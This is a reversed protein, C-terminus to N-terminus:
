AARESPALSHCTKRWTTKGEARGSVKVPARMARAAAKEVTTAASSIAAFSPSPQITKEALRNRRLSTIMTPMMTRPTMPMASFRRTRRASVAMTCQRPTSHARRRRARDPSRNREPSAEAIPPDREQAEQHEGREPDADGLEAEDVIQEQGPRRQ